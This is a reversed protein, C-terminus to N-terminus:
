AVADPVAFIVDDEYRLTPALCEILFKAAMQAFDEM